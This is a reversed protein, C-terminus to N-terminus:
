PEFEAPFQGFIPRNQGIELWFFNSFKKTIFLAMIKCLNPWFNALFQGLIPRNQGIEPWFCISFKKTIFFAMIKGLNPWFNASFRGIKPGFFGAPSEPKSSRAEPPSPGGLFRRPRAPKPSLGLGSGDSLYQWSTFFQLLQPNATFVCSTLWTGLSTGSCVESIFHKHKIFHGKQSISWFNGKKQFLFVMIKIKQYM